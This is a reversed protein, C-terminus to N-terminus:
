RETTRSIGPCSPQGVMTVPFLDKDLVYITGKGDLALVSNSNLTHPNQKLYEIIRSHVVSRVEVPLEEVLVLDQNESELQAMAPLSMVSMISFLIGKVAKKRM